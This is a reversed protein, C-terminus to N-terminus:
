QSKPYHYIDMAKSCAYHWYREDIPRTLKMCQTLRDKCYNILGKVQPEKIIKAIKKYSYGVCHYLALARFEQFPLLAIYESLTAIQIKNLRISIFPSREEQELEAILREREEKTDNGFVNAFVLSKKIKPM